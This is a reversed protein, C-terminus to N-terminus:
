HWTVHTCKSWFQMNIITKQSDSFTAKHTTTYFDLVGVSFNAPNVTMEAGDVLHGVVQYVLDGPMLKCEVSLDIHYGEAHGLSYDFL